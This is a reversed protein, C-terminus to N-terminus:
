KRRLLTLASLSRCEAGEVPLGSPERNEAQEDSVLDSWQTERGGMRVAM